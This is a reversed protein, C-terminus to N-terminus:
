NARLVRVDRGESVRSVELFTSGLQETVERAAQESAGSSSSGWVEPESVVSYLGRWACMETSPCSYFLQRQMEPTNHGNIKKSLTNVLYM